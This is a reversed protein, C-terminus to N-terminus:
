AGSHRARLMARNIDDGASTYTRMDEPLSRLAARYCSLQYRHTVVGDNVWDSIVREACYTEREPPSLGAIGLSLGAIAVAVVAYVATALIHFRPM